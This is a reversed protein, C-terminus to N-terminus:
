WALCVAYFDISSCILDYGFFGPDDCNITLPIGYNHFM